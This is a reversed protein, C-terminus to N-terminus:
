KPVVHVLPVIVYQAVDALSVIVYVVVVALSAIAYLVALVLIPVAFDAANVHSHVVGQVVYAILAIVYVAVLHVHSLVYQLQQLQAYMAPVISM